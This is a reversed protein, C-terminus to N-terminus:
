CSEWRLSRRGTRSTEHGVAGQQKASQFAAPSQAFLKMFWSPRWGDKELGKSCSDRDHKREYSQRDENHDREDEHQRRKADDTRGLDPQDDLAEASSAAAVVVRDGKVAFRAVLGRQEHRAPMELEPDDERDLLMGPHLHPGALDADDHRLHALRQGDPRLRGMRDAFQVDDGVQMGPERRPSLLAHLTRDQRRAAEHRHM